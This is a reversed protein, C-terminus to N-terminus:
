DGSFRNTELYEPYYEIKAQSYKQLPPLFNQEFLINGLYDKNYWHLVLVRKTPLAQQARTPYLTSLVVGLILVLALRIFKDSPYLSWNRFRPPFM